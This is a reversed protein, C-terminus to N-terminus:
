STVPSSGRARTWRPAHKPPARVLQSTTAVIDGMTFFDINYSSFSHRPRIRESDSQAVSTGLLVDRVEGAHESVRKSSSQTILKTSDDHFGM